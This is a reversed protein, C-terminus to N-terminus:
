STIYICTFYVEMLVANLPGAGGHFYMKEANYFRAPLRQFRWKRRKINRLTMYKISSNSKQLM